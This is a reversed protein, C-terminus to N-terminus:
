AYCRQQMLRQAKSAEQQLIVFEPIDQDWEILTPVPGFHDLAYEYLRWVPDHVPEGHTDHLFDGRDTYGALHFQKVRQPDIGQVYEQADFEHNCASVYVNNVDFLIFCDAQKAVENLFQWETMQDAHYQMYSSVNEVVIQQGLFDQVQQIRSVVHQLAEESYPLPMLDHLYTQDASIWCLHDSIHAPQVREALAKVKSLYEMNLPDTSGLSMGVGHMVVPYEAVISDLQQLVPGGEVLYNDTLIEFWPIDPHNTLIYEYHCARLGIGVDHIPRRQKIQNVELM